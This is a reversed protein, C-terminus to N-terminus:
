HDRAHRGFPTWGFPPFIEDLFWDVLVVIGAHRPGLGPAKLPIDAALSVQAYTGMWLIGPRLAASTGGPAGSVATSANFEVYPFLDGFFAGRSFGRRLSHELSYGADAQRVWHNLYPISYMLLDDYVIQHDRPGTLSSQFGVDGQIAFPRLWPVRLDGFGKGYLLM